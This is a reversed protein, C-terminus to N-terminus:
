RPAKKPTTISTPLVTDNQWGITFASGTDGQYDYDDQANTLVSIVEGRFEKSGSKRYPKTVIVATETVIVYMWSCKLGMVTNANWYFATATLPTNDTITLGRLTAYNAITYSTAPMNWSSYLIARATDSLYSVLKGAGKAEKVFVKKYLRGSDYLEDQEIASTLYLDSTNDAFDTCIFRM